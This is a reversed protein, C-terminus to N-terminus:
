KEQKEITAGVPKKSVLLTYDKVPGLESMNNERINVEWREDLEDFMLLGKPDSNEVRFFALWREGTILKQVSVSGVWVRQDDISTKTPWLQFVLQQNDNGYPKVYLVSETKDYNTQPLRIIQSLDPEPALWYLLSKFTIDPSPHWGKKLLTQEIAAINGQWQLNLRIKKNGFIDERKEPLRQWYTKLWDTQSVIEIKDKPLILLDRQFDGYIMMSATLICVMVSSGSIFSFSRIEHWHRRYGLSFLLLWIVSLSVAVLVLSFSLLGFYIDSFSFIFILFIAFSYSIWRKSNVLSESSIVIYFLLANVFLALQVFVFTNVFLSTLSTYIVAVVWSTFFTLALLGVYYWFAKRVGNSYFGIFTNIVFLLLVMWSFSVQIVWMLKDSTASRILTSVNAILLDLSAIWPSWLSAVFVTLFSFLIVIFLASYLLANKEKKHPDVLAGITLRLLTYKNSWRILKSFWGELKPEIFLMSKKVVYFLLVSVFFIGLLIIVLRSGIASALGISTGFLIGPILYFPAWGAASLVNIAFFKKAPMHMMGAVAPIVPRLPGIFRGFFVSKGGHRGFFDHGKKLINPNNKFPWFGSIKERYTAGFWFSIGDGLVAGAFALLLVLKVDLVGTGVLTGVGFMLITGPVILGVIVLSETLAILFVFLGSWAPHDSLWHFIPQISQWDM